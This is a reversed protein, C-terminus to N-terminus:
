DHTQWQDVERAFVECLRDALARGHASIESATRGVVKGPYERELAAFLVAKQKSSVQLLLKSVESRKVSQREQEEIKMDLLRIEKQTKEDKTNVLKEKTRTNHERYYRFMGTLTPQLQWVMEECPPFYGDAALQVHRRHTLGSMACLEVATITTTENM